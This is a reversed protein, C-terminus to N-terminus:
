GVMSRGMCSSARCGVKELENYEFTSSRSKDIRGPTSNGEVTYDGNKFVLLYNLSFCKQYGDEPAMYDSYLGSNRDQQSKVLGCDDEVMCIRSTRREYKRHTGPIDVSNNDVVYENLYEMDAFRGKGYPPLWDGDLFDYYAKVSKVTTAEGRSAKASEQFLGHLFIEKIYMKVPSRKKKLMIERPVVLGEGDNLVRATKKDYLPPPRRIKTEQPYYGDKSVTVDIYDVERIVSFKCQGNPATQTKLGSHGSRVYWITGELLAGPVGEGQDDIVRLEIEQRACAVECTLGVCLTLVITFRIFDISARM